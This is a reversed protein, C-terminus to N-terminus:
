GGAEVLVAIVQVREARDAETVDFETGHRWARLGPIGLRPHEANGCAVRQHIPHSEVVLADVVQERAKRV